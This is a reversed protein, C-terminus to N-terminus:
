TGNPVPWGPQALVYWTMVLSFVLAAWYPPLIRWARRHAYTALSAFRWGSRAPGLGLSFGSLAIFIVVAARGFIMWAAWFPAHDAPGGPWARDFIHNLVVFLAALGRIGDLGAVRGPAAPRSVPPPHDRIDTMLGRDGPTGPRHAPPDRLRTGPGPVAPRPRRPPGQHGPLRRQDRDPAPRHPDAQRRHHGPPDASRGQRPQQQAARHPRRRARAADPGRQHLGTRRGPSRPRSQGRLHGPRSRAARLRRTQRVARHRARGPASVAPVRRAQQDARGSRATAARLRM